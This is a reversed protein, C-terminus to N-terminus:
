KISIPMFSNGWEFHLYNVTAFERSGVGSERSSRMDGPAVEGIAKGNHM